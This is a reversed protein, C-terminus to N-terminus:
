HANNQIVQRHRQIPDNFMSLASPHNTSLPRYYAHYVTEGDATEGSFKGLYKATIFLYNEHVSIFKQVVRTETFDTRIDSSVWPSGVWDESATYTRFRPHRWITNLDADEYVFAGQEAGEEDDRNRFALVTLIKFTSYKGDFVFDDRPYNGTDTFRAISAKKAPGLLSKRNLSYNSPGQKDSGAKLKCTVHLASMFIDNGADFVERMWDSGSFHCGMIEVEPFPQHLLVDVVFQANMHSGYSSFHTLSRSAIPATPTMDGQLDTCDLSLTILSPMRTLLAHLSRVDVVCQWCKFIQCSQFFAPIHTFSRIVSTCSNTYTRYDPSNKNRHGIVELVVLNRPSTVMKCTEKVSPEFSGTFIVEQLSLSELSPLSLLLKSFTNVNISCNSFTSEALTNTVNVPCLCLVNLWKSFDFSSSMGGLVQLTNNQLKIKHHFEIRLSLCMVRVKSINSFFCRLVDPKRFASKSCHFEVLESMVNAAKTLCVIWQSCDLRNSFFGDLGSKRYDKQGIFRLVGKDFSVIHEVSSDPLCVTKFVFKQFPPFQLLKLLSTLTRVDLELESFYLETLCQGIFSYAPPMEVDHFSYPWKKMNILYSTNEVKRAKFKMLNPFFRLNVDKDNRKVHKLTTHDLKLQTVSKLNTNFMNLTIMTAVNITSRSIVLNTDDSLTFSTSICDLWPTVDFSNDFGEFNLTSGNLQIKQVLPLNRDTQINEILLHTSNPGPMQRLFNMLHHEKLVCEKCTFGALTKRLEPHSVLSELLVTYYSPNSNGYESLTLLKSGTSNRRFRLKEAHKGYLHIGICSIKLTIKKGVLNEMPMISNQMISTTDFLMGGIVSVDSVHSFNSLLEVPLFFPKNNLFALEIRELFKLWIGKLTNLCTELSFSKSNGGNLRGYPSEDSCAVFKVSKVLKLWTQLNDARQMYYSIFNPLSTNSYNTSGCFVKIKKVLPELLLHLAENCKNRSKEHEDAELLMLLPLRWPNQVPTQYRKSDGIGLLCVNSCENRLECMFEVVRPILLAAATLSEGCCFRLLYENEDLNERRIHRLYHFFQDSNTQNGSGALSTWYVAACIQQFTNHLFMVKKSSNKSTSKRSIVKDPVTIIGMKEAADFLTTTTETKTFEERNKFLGELAIKGIGLLLRYVKNRIRDKREDDLPLPNKKEQKHTELNILLKTYLKTISTPLHNDDRWLISLMCLLLPMQSFDSLRRSNFINRCLRVVILLNPFLYFLPLFLKFLFSYIMAFYLVRVFFNPVYTINFFKLAYKVVNPGTFGKLNVHCFGKSDKVFEDVKNTRTSVVVYSESLRRSAFLNKFDACHQKFVPKGEDYGDVLLLISQSNEKLYKELGKKSVDSLLQDAIVDVLKTERKIDRVRILFVLEFRSLPTTKEGVAWEYAIKNLATTKGIGPNGRLLIRKLCTGDKNTINVLETVSKLPKTSVGLTNGKEEILELDVFIDEIDALSKPIDPSILPIERLTTAYEQILQDKVQQVDFDTSCLNFISSLLLLLLFFIIICTYKECNSKNLPGM